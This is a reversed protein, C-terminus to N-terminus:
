WLGLHRLVNRWVCHCMRPARLRLLPLFNVKERRKILIRRGDNDISLARSPFTSWFILSLFEHWILRGPRCFSLSHFRHHNSPMIGESPKMIDSFFLLFSNGCIGIDCEISYNFQFSKENPFWLFTFSIDWVAATM